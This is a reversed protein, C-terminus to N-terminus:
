FNKEIAVIKLKRVGRPIRVIVEEGVIHGTIAQGVPSKQSIRQIGDSSIAAGSLEESGVLDYTYQKGGKDLDELTIRLGVAARTTDLQSEDIVTVKSLTLELDMIRDELKAQEEKAAAYEANESLDGFARAEELKKAIEQRGQTRLTTLEQSLREYGSRTMEHTDSKKSALIKVKM